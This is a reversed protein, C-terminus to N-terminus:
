RLLALEDIIELGDEDDWRDGVEVLGESEILCRSPTNGPSVTARLALADGSAEAVARM